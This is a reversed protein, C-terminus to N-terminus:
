TSELALLEFNLERRNKVKVVEEGYTIGQATNQM